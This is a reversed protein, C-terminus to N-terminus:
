LCAPYKPTIAYCSAPPAPCAPNREHIADKCDCECCRSSNANGDACAAQCSSMCAALAGSCNPACRTQVRDADHTAPLSVSGNAACRTGTDLCHNEASLTYTILRPDKCGVVRSTGDCAVFNHWHHELGALDHKASWAFGILEGGLSRVQAFSGTNESGFSAMEATKCATAPSAWSVTIPMDDVTSTYWSAPIDGTQISTIMGLLSFSADISASILNQQPDSSQDLRKHSADSVCGCVIAFLAMTFPGSVRNM